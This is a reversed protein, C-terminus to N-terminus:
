KGPRMALIVLFGVAVVLLGGASNPSGLGAFNVPPASRDRVRDRAENLVRGAERSTDQAGRVDEAADGVSEAADGVAGGITGVGKGIAGVAAGTKRITGAVAGAVVPAGMAIAGLVDHAVAVGAVVAAATVARKLTLERKFSKWTINRLRFKAM